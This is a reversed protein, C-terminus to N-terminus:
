EARGRTHKRSRIVDRVNAPLVLKIQTDSWSIYSSATLKAGAIEVYSMDRVDGFNEGNIVVLDGPAGVPPVISHIVPIPKTRYNFVFISGLVVLIVFIGIIWRLLPYRRFSYSFKGSSDM